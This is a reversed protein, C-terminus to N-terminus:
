LPRFQMGPVPGYPQVGQQMHQPLITPPRQLFQTPPVLGGAVAARMQESSVRRQRSTAEEDDTDEEASLMAAARAGGKGREAAREAAGTALGLLIVLIGCVFLLFAVSGFIGFVKVYDTQEQLQIQSGCARAVREGAVQSKSEPFGPSCVDSYGYWCGDQTSHEWISCGPDRYCVDRCALVEAKYTGTSSLPRVDA